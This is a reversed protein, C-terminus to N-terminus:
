GGGVGTGSLALFIHVTISWLALVASILYTLVIGMILGFVSLLLVSGLFHDAM